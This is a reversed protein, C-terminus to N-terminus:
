FQWNAEANGPLGTGFELMSAVGGESGVGNCRGDIPEVAFAPGALASIFYVVDGGGSGGGSGGGDPGGGSAFLFWVTGPVM